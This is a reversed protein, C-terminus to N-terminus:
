PYTKFNNFTPLGLIAPQDIEGGPPKEFFAAELSVMFGQKKRTKIKDYNVDKRFTKNFNMM